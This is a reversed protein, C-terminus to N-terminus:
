FSHWVAFRGIGGHLADFHIGPFAGQRKAALLLQNHDGTVRVTRGLVHRAARKVLRVVLFHGPGIFGAAHFQEILRTVDRHHHTVLGSDRHKAGGNRQARRDCSQRFRFIQDIFENEVFQLGHPHRRRHNAIIRREQAAGADINGSTERGGGFGGPKERVLVWVFAVPPNVFQQVADIVGIVEGVFPRRQQAVFSRVRFLGVVGVSEM